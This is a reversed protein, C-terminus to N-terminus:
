KSASISHLSGVLTPENVWGRGDWYKVGRKLDELYKQDLTGRIRGEKKLRAHLLDTATGSKVEKIRLDKSFIFEFQPVLDATTSRASFRLVNEHESELTINSLITRTALNMDSIPLRVYCIEAASRTKGFGETVSSETEGVIKTPDLVIIAAFGGNTQEDTDNVGCLVIKKKNSGDLDVLYQNGLTGYHWYRGLINGKADLRALFFPSRQNSAGVLLQNSRHEPGDVVLPYLPMFSADYTKDRFVIHEAAFEKEMVIVQRSDFARVFRRRWGENPLPLTTIVERRGDKFLDAVQIYEIRFLSKQANLEKMNLQPIQWLITGSKDYAALAGLSENVVASSVEPVVGGKMANLIFAVFALVAVVGASSVFPRKVAFSWARVRLSRRVRELDAVSKGRSYEPRIALSDGHDAEVHENLLVQGRGVMQYFQALEEALSRCTYCEKLHQELEERVGEAKQSGLVYLEIMNQDYHKMVDQRRM